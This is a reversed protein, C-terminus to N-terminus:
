KRILSTHYFNPSSNHRSLPSSSTSYIAQAAKVSYTRHPAESSPHKAHESGRHPEPFIRTYVSPYHLLPTTHFTNSSYRQISHFLPTPFVRERNKKGLPTQYINIIIRYSGPNGYNLVLSYQLHPNPEYSISAYAPQYLIAFHDIYATGTTTFQLYLLNSGRNM